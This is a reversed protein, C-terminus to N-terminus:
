EEINSKDYYSQKAVHEEEMIVKIGRRGTTEKQGGGRVVVMEPSAATEKAKAQQKNFWDIADKM